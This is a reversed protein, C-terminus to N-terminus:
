VAAHRRSASGPLFAPSSFHRERNRPQHRECSGDLPKAPFCSGEEDSRGEQPKLPTSLVPASAGARRGSFSACFGRRARCFISKRFAASGHCSARGYICWRSSYACISIRLLASPMCCRVEGRVQDRAPGRRKQFDPCSCERAYAEGTLRGDDHGTAFGTLTYIRGSPSYYAYELNLAYGFPIRRAGILSRFALRHPEAVILSQGQAKAQAQRYSLFGNVRANHAPVRVPRSPVPLRDEWQPRVGSATSRMAAAAELAAPHSVFQEGFEPVSSM